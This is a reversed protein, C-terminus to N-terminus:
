SSLALTKCLTFGFQLLPKASHLLHPIMAPPATPLPLAASM